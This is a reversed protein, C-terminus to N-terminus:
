ISKLLAKEGGYAERIDTPARNWAATVPLLVNGCMLNTAYCGPEIIHVSVDFPRM